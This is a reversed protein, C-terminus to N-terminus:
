ANRKIKIEKKKKALFFFKSQTISESFVAERVQVTQLVFLEVLFHAIKKLINEFSKCGM